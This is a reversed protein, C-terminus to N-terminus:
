IVIIGIWFEILAVYIAIMLTTFLHVFIYLNFAFLALLIM